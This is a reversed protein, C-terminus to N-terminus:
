FCHFRGCMKAYIDLMKQIKSMNKRELDQRFAMPVARGTGRIRFQLATGSTGIGPTGAQRHQVEDGGKGLGFEAGDHCRDQIM